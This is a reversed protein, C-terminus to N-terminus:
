NLLFDFPRIEATTISVPYVAGETLPADVAAEVRVNWPGLALASVAYDGTLEAAAEEYSLPAASVATVTGGGGAGSVPAGTAVDAAADQPLYCVLVGDAAVANATVTTPLSATLGWALVGSLVAAAVLLVLWMSPSSVRIYDDLQEPSSAKDMSSKRFITQDM